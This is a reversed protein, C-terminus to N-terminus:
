LNFEGNDYLGGRKNQKEQILLQKEAQEQETLAYINIALNRLSEHWFKKLNSLQLKNASDYEKFSKIEKNIRKNTELMVEKMASFNDIEEKAFIKVKNRVALYFFEGAFYTSDTELFAGKFKKMENAYLTFCIEIAEKLSEQNDKSYIIIAEKGSWFFLDNRVVKNTTLKSTANTSSSDNWLIGVCQVKPGTEETYDELINQPLGGPSPSGGMAGTKSRNGNGRNFDM